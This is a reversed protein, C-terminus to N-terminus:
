SASRVLSSSIKPDVCAEPVDRSRDVAQSGCLGEVYLRWTEEDAMPGM